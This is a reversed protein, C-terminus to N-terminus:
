LNSQRTHPPRALLSFLCSCFQQALSRRVRDIFFFLLFHLGYPISVLSRLPPMIACPTLLILLRPVMSRFNTV